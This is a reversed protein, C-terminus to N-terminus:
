NKRETRIIDNQQLVDIYNANAHGQRRRSRRIHSMGSCHSGPKVQWIDWSAIDILDKTLRLESKLARLINYM